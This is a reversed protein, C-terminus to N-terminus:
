RRSTATTRWGAPAAADAGSGSGPQVAWRHWITAYFSVLLGGERVRLGGGGADGALVPVVGAAVLRPTFAGQDKVAKYEPVPTVHEDAGLLEGLLLGVDIPKPLVWYGVELATSVKRTLPPPPPPDDM